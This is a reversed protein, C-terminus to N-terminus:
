YLNSKKARDPDGRDENPVGDDELSYNLGPCLMAEARSEEREAFVFFSDATKLVKVGVMSSAGLFEGKWLGKSVSLNHSLRLNDAPDEGVQLLTNM